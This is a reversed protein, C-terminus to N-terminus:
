SNEPNITEMDKEVAAQILDKDSSIFTKEQNTEISLAASLQISDLTRLDNDLVLDFSFEMFSEELPIIIFDDLAEQFFDTLISQIDEEGLEGRNQKRKFASM